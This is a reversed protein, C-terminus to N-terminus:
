LLIKLFCKLIARYFNVLHSFLRGIKTTTYGKYGVGLEFYDRDYFLTDLRFPLIITGKFPKGKLLRELNNINSGKLIFVTLDLKKALKTAVPDFPVNAGPSWKDGVLKEFNEWSIKEIPRADPYKNPDKDYVVEINSLNILTKSRYKKALIVADYDTSWGPKWGACIVVPKDISPDLKDYKFIIRPITIDAFLTRLLQANMKTSHIGLWDVDEDSIEGVVDRVATQYIRSIAGGGCVIFFRKDKEIQRRILENFKRLFETDIGEKPHILSGGLSLIITQKYNNM